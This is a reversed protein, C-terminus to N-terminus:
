IHILSLWKSPVNTCHQHTTRTGQREQSCPPACAGRRRRLSEPTLRGLVGPHSAESIDVPVTVTTEGSDAPATPLGEKAALQNADDNDNLAPAHRGGWGGLYARPSSSLRLSLLRHFVSVMRRGAFSGALLPLTSLRSALVHLCASITSAFLVLRPPSVSCSISLPKCRSAPQGPCSGRGTVM